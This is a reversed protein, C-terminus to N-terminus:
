LISRPQRAHGFFAYLAFAVLLVGLGIASGEPGVSGGTLWAGGKLVSHLLVNHATVGSGPVAYLFTLSFDWAAHLGVAFWLSGTRLLTLAAFMAYIAVDIAGYFGEGPNGLHVAAFIAALLGAAPWFGIARSLSRLAYGRFAYEEFLGVLLFGAAWLLGYVVVGPMTLARSGFSYGGLLWTVVIDAFALVLGLLVGQGLLRLWRGAPWLGYERIHQHELRAIVVCIVITLLLGASDVFWLLRWEIVGIKAARLLPGVAPLKALLLNLGILGATIAVAFLVFSAFAVQRERKDAVPKAM